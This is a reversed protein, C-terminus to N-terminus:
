AGVLPLAVVDPHPSAVAYAPRHARTHTHARVYKAGIGDAAAEAEASPLDAVVVRAGKSALLRATALGLGSAGGTVLARVAATNM